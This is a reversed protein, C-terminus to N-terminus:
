LSAHISRMSELGAPNNQRPLRVVADVTPAALPVQSELRLRSSCWILGTCAVQRRGSAGGTPGSCAASCSPWSARRCTFVGASEAPIGWWTQPPGGLGLLSRLSPHSQALYVVCVALGGLMGLLAGAQSARRWFVGCVLAPFFISGALSFAATVLQLIGAQRSAAMAAALVAAALLLAKSLTVRRTRSAGPNVSKFYVDHCRAPFPCCCAM